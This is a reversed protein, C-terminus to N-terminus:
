DEGRNGGAMEIGSHGPCIEPDPFDPVMIIEYYGSIGCCNGM